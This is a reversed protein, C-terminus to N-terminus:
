RTTEFRGEKVPQWDEIEENWKYLINDWWDYWWGYLTYTFEM